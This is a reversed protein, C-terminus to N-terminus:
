HNLTREKFSCNKEETAHKELNQCSKKRDKLGNVTRMQVLMEMTGFFLVQSTFVKKSLLNGMPKKDCAILEIREKCHCVTLYNM